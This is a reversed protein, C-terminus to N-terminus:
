VHAQRQQLRQLRQLQHLWTLLVRETSAIAQECNNNSLQGGENLKASTDCM